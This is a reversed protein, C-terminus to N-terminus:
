RYTRGGVSSETHLGFSHHLVRAARVTEDISVVMSVRMQSMGIWTTTIGASALSSLARAVLDPRNLLGAGIVSVKGATTDCVLDGGTAAAMRALREWLRAAVGATVTFGVQSRAAGVATFALLDVPVAEEALVDLV